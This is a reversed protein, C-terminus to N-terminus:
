LAAFRPQTMVRATTGGCACRRTPSIAADALQSTSKWRQAKATAERDPPARSDDHDNRPERNPDPAVPESANATDKNFPEGSPGCGQPTATYHIPRLEVRNRGMLPGCSEPINVKYSDKRGHGGHVEHCLWGADVATSLHRKLTGLPLGTAEILESRWAGKQALWM